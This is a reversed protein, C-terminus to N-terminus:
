DKNNKALHATPYEGNFRVTYRYMDNLQNNTFWDCIADNHLSRWILPHNVFTTGNHQYTDASKEVVFRAIIGHEYIMTLMGNEFKYHSIRVCSFFLMSKIIQIIKKM